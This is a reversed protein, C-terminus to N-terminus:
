KRDWALNIWEVSWATEKLEMKIDQWKHRPKGLSTKGKPKKKSL